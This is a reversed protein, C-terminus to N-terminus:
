GNGGGLPKLRVVTGTGLMRGEVGVRPIISFWVRGPTKHEDPLM